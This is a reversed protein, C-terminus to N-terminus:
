KGFKWEGYDYILYAVFLVLLWLNNALFGAGKALLRLVSGVLSFIPGLVPGLKRPLEKFADALKNGANKGARASSKVLSVVTTVFSALMISVGALALGNEKLFKKVTELTVRENKEVVEELIEQSVEHEVPVEM